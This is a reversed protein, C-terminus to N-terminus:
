HVWRGGRRRRPNAPDEARTARDALEEATPPQEAWYHAVAAVAAPMQALCEDYEQENL